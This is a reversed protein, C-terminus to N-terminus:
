APSAEVGLSRRVRASELRRVIEGWDVFVIYMALHYPFFINMFFLTGLHFVVGMGLIILRARKFFIALPFLLEWLIVLAMFIPTYERVQPLWFALQFRSDHLNDLSHVIALTPLTDPDMYSLGMVRLKIVASSFYSWSLLARMLLIPYGYVL